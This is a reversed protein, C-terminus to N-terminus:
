RLLSDLKKLEDQYNALLIADHEAEELEGSTVRSLFDQVSIQNWKKLIENLGEVVLRHKTDILDKATDFDLTITAKEM